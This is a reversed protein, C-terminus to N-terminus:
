PSNLFGKISDGISKVTEKAKTALDDVAMLNAGNQQQEIITGLTDIIVNQLAPNNAMDGQPTLSKDGLQTVTKGDESSVKTDHIIFKKLTVTKAMEGRPTQIKRDMLLKHIETFNDRGDRAIFKGNIHQATISKIHYPSHSYDDFVVNIKEITIADGSGFAEPNVLHVDTLILEPPSRSFDSQDIVLFSGIDRNLVRPVSNAWLNPLILYVGGIVLVIFLPLLIKKSLSSM